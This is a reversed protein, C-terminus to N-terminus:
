QGPPKAPANTGPQVTTTGDQRIEVNLGTNNTTAPTKESFGENLIQGGKRQQNNYIGRRIWDLRKAVALQDKLKSVQERLVALDNFQRELEAKEAQLRKLEKLLFAKEGESTALRRETEAIQTDLKAIAGKLDTMESELQDRETTLKAITEDRRSIESELRQSTAQYETRTKALTSDLSQVSNSLSDLEVLRRNLNTELILNVNKQENLDTRVSVVENSLQLVRSAREAALATEAELNQNLKVLGIGLGVAVLILVIIAVKIKM